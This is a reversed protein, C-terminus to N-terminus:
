LLSGKYPRKGYNVHIYLCFAGFLVCALGTLVFYIGLFPNKGGLLSMTSFIVRKRFDKHHVAFNYEIQLEYDGKKLGKIIRYLKRFNPLASTRMWVILDENELGNNQPDDPDLEWISKQWFIPKDFELGKLSNNDPNKFKTKKDWDWVRGKKELNIEQTENFLKITDNFLSNAIAGCPLIPKNSNSFKFPECDSSPVKSLKGVLQKDDRSKVYKRHNQFFHHLSYYMFIKGGIDEKLSFNMKCNCTANGSKIDDICKTNASSQCNTYDIVIEQVMESFYICIMGIPILVIGVIFFIKLTSEATLWLQWTHLSQQYFPNAKPRKKGLSTKRKTLSKESESRKQQSTSQVDQKTNKNHGTQLQKLGHQSLLERRINSKGVGSTDKKHQGKKDQEMPTRSSYSEKKASSKM